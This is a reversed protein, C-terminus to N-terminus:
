SSREAGGTKERGMHSGLKFPKQFIFEKLSQKGFVVVLWTVESM